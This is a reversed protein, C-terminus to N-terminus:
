VRSTSANQSQLGLSLNLLHLHLVSHLVLQSAQMHAHVATGRLATRSPRGRPQRACKQRRIIGSAGAALLWSTCPEPWPGHRRPPCVCIMCRSGPREVGSLLCASVWLALLCAEAHCMHGYGHTQATRGLELWGRVGRPRCKAHKCASEVLFGLQCM